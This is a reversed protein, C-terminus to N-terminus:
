EGKTANRIKMEEMSRFRGHDDRVYCTLGAYKTERETTREYSACDFRDAIYVPIMLAFIFATFGAVVLIASGIGKAIEKIKM